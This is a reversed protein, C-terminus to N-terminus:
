IEFRRLYLSPNSEGSDSLCQSNTASVNVRNSDTDDASGTTVKLGITQEAVQEASLGADNECLMADYCGNDDDAADPVDDWNDAVDDAAVASDKEGAKNAPAEM